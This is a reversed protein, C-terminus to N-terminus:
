ERPPKHHMPGNGKGFKPSSRLLWQVYNISKKVSQNIPIGMGIYTSIASALTCGTGHTNETKIKKSEFVKTENESILADVINNSEGHGGKVLVYEPGLKLIKKGAKIQSDINIIKVGSLLSAEPINPTVIMARPILMNKITSLAEDSILIDGSTSISVPDVILPYQKLNSAIFSIVKPDVLMGTKVVDFGIDEEVLEIQKIVMKYPIEHISSVQRTNQSTVATIATMAFGGIANITKIDAQIGAGGGSDSGAITMVRPIKNQNSPM